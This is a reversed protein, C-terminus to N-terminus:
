KCRKGVFEAFGILYEKAESQPLLALAAVALSSQEELTKQALQLGDNNHVFAAVEEIISGEEASIKRGHTKTDKIGTLMERIGKEKAPCNQMALLLPLTIKREKLDSGSTKGTDLSPLYDFIDDRMQFALGLHEAYNTMASVTVPSAKVAFAASKLTAIFLSATKREIIDYYDQISTNLSEAKSMQIMEGESMQQVAATFCQMINSNCKSTLIHLARSLWFDGALVAAAPSFAINVSSYNRRMSADDAVDDHMLTANHIMEAVVACYYSIPVLNGCAKGTLLSLVPRLEKGEHGIVYNNIKTLLVDSSQVAVSLTQRYKDYDSGLKKRAQEIALKDM